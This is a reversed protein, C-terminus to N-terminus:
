ALLMVQLARRLEAVTFPKELAPIHHFMGEPSEVDGTMFVFPIHRDSLIQAVSLASDLGLEVDLLAGDLAWTSAIAAAEALTRAPGVVSYGFEAIEDVLMSAILCDDEVVLIRPEPASPALRAEGDDALPLAFVSVVCERLQVLTASRRSWPSAPSRGSIAVCCWWLPGVQAGLAPGFAVPAGGPTDRRAPNRTLAPGLPLEPLELLFSTSAPYQTDPHGRLPLASARRLARTHAGAHESKLLMSTPLVTRLRDLDSRKQSVVSARTRRSKACGRSSKHGTETTGHPPACACGDRRRSDLGLTGAAKLNIALEFKTPQQV